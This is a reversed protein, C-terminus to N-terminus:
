RNGGTKVRGFEVDTNILVSIKLEPQKNRVSAKVVAVVVNEIRKNAWKHVCRKKEREREYRYKFNFYINKHKKINYYINVKALVLTYTKLINFFYIIEM